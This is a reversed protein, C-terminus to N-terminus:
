ASPTQNSVHQSHHDDQQVEQNAQEITRSPINNALSGRPEPLEDKLQLVEM